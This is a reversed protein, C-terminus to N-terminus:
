PSLCLQSEFGPKGEKGYQSYTVISHEDGFSVDADGSGLTLPWVSSPVSPQPPMSYTSDVATDHGNCDHAWPM